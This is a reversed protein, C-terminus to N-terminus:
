GETALKRMYDDYHPETKTPTKELDSLLAKMDAPIGEGEVGHHALAGKIEANAVYPGWAADAPDYIQPIGQGGKAHRALDSMVALTEQKAGENGAPLQKMWRPIGMSAWLVSTGNANKGFTQDMLAGMTEKNQMGPKSMLDSLGDLSPKLEAIGGGRQAITLTAHEQALAERTDKCTRIQAMCPGAKDLLAQKNRSYVDDDPETENAQLDAKIQTLEAMAEENKQANAKQAAENAAFRPGINAVYHQHALNTAAVLSAAPKTARAALHEDVPLKKLSNSINVSAEAVEAPSLKTASAELRKSVTALAVGRDEAPLSDISKCSKAFEAPTSAVRVESMVRNMKTQAFTPLATSTGLPKSSQSLSRTLMPM